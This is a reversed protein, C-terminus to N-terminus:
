WNSLEILEDCGQPLYAWNKPFGPTAEWSEKVYLEGLVILERHGATVMDDYDDQGQLLMVVEPHCVRLRFGGIDVHGILESM